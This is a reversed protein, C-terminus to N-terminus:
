ARRRRGRRRRRSRPRLSDETSGPRYQEQAQTWAQFAEQLPGKSNARLGLFDYAARFYGRSIVREPHRRPGAELQAQRRWIERIMQAHRHPIQITEAQHELAKEGCVILADQRELRHSGRAKMIQCVDPWMMVAYAFAPSLSKGERARQDTNRLARRLFELHQSNKDQKLIQDTYPFLQELLEKSRLLTLTDDAAGSHMLKVGEDFLRAPSINQLSPALEPILQEMAPDITFKLKAAFRLVRLLRVPDERFRVVPKGIMRL